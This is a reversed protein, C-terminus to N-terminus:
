LESSQALAGRVADCLEPAVAEAAARRPPGTALLEPIRQTDWVAVVSGRSELARTLELQHDDVHEGLDHRRPVVLPTHGERTACIISGVGAHTIVADAERFCALMEDFSLYDAARTANAPPRGPGYQVVLNGLELGELADLLRTFPQHHTGVTAFIL